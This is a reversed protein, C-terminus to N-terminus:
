TKGRVDVFDGVRFHSVNLETGPLIAAEPSIIFRSLNKKPMVGSNKFLNMYNATLLNPNISGSGILLCGKKSYDKLPKRFYPNFEEPPTYKVVHNDDIQIVTTAIRKGNKLWLPYHGLKRGVLGTRALGKRWEVPALTETKLLSSANEYTLLGNKMVPKGYKEHVFEEM